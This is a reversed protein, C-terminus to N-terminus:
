KFQNYDLYTPIRELDHSPTVMYGFRSYRDEGFIDVYEVVGYIITIKGPQEDGECGPVCGWTVSKDAPLPEVLPDVVSMRSFDPKPPLKDVIAMGIKKATIWAPTKGANEIVCRVFAFSGEVKKGDIVHSNIGLKMKTKAKDWDLTPILWARETNKISETSAKVAYTSEQTASATSNIASVQRAAQGSAEQMARLQGNMVNIQHTFQEENSRSQERTLQIQEKIKRLTLWSFLVYVGTFVVYVATLAVAVWEPTRYWPKAEALLALCVLASLM